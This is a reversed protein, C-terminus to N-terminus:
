DLMEAQNPVQDHSNLTGSPIQEISDSREDGDTVNKGFRRLATRYDDNTYENDYKRNIWLVLDEAADQDELVEALGGVKEALITCHRLLKDHRHDIYDSKLIDIRDSFAILLELDTDSILISNRIRERLNEIQKRPDTM